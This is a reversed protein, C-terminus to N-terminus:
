IFQTLVAGFCIQVAVKAVKKALNKNAKVNATGTRNSDSVTAMFYYAQDPANQDKRDEAIDHGSGLFLRGPFDHSLMKQDSEDNYRNGM